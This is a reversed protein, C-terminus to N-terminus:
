VASDAAGNGVSQEGEQPYNSELDGQLKESWSVYAPEYQLTAADNASNIASHLDAISSKHKWKHWHAKSKEYFARARYSPDRHQTATDLLKIARDLVPLREEISDIKSEGYRWLAGGHKSRAVDNYRITDGSSELADFARVARPYDRMKFAIEAISRLEDASFNNRTQGSTNTGALDIADASEHEDNLNAKPLAVPIWEKVISSSVRDKEVPMLEAAFRHYEGKFDGSTPDNRIDNLLFLLSVKLEADIRFFPSINWKEANQAGNGNQKEANQAGNDNRKEANKGGNDKQWYFLSNGSGDQEGPPLLGFASGNVFYRGCLLRGRLVSHWNHTEFDSIVSDTSPKYDPTLLALIEQRLGWHLDQLVKHPVPVHALKNRLANIADYRNIRPLNGSYVQPVESIKKWAELFAVPREPNHTTYEGVAICFPTANPIESSSFDKLLDIWPKIYGDLCADGNSLDSDPDTPSPLGTVKHRLRNAESLTAPDDKWLALLRCAFAAGLTVVLSEHIHILRWLHEYVSSPDAILRRRYAEYANAVPTWLRM